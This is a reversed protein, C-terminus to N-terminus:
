AHLVVWFATCLWSGVFSFVPQGDRKYGVVHDWDELVVAMDDAYASVKGKSGLTDVLCRILPDLVLAFLVPSLPCGQRVGSEVTFVTRKNGESDKHVHDNRVYFSKMAGLWDSPMGM